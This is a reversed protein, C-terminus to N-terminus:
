IVATVRVHARAPRSPEEHGYHDDWSAWALLIAPEKSKAAGTWRLSRVLTSPDTGSAPEVIETIEVEWNV